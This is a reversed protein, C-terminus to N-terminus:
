HFIHVEIDEEGASRYIFSEMKDSSNIKVELDYHNPFMEKILGYVYQTFGIVESKGYFQLPIDLTLKKLEDDVYFGEGVVGVYNPFYEVIDNSFNQILQDDDFYNERSEESPFLVYNENIEEWEEITAGEEVLTKVVFNGPVPSSQEAERYLAIMIPVNQLAEIERVRNLIKEAAKKGEELMERESIEEYHTPGGIETQFQYVSKLAIGISVGILDVTNDENRELYNQELIHSIYRPNERHENIKEEEDLGDMDEIPPNLGTQLEERIEDEDVTRGDKELQRIREEVMKELEDESLARGLWDYVMEETLYQGEEFYYKEPDFYQKSHHQLGEELEDIDLRNFVQNTIVGRAESTRYPLIIKYNDTALRYSPVISLEQDTEEENTQLVEDEQGDPACSVLILICVIWVIIKKMM